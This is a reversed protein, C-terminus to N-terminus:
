SQLNEEYAIKNLADVYARISAGVIDTSVGQGSFLRGGSRLKVLASGMAERGGTVAEIQFDDLEFHRGAAQEVAQFAADVPGDGTVLGRRQTGDKELVIHATADIVNGANIVYSVLKYTAPVQLAAGAVIADLEKVGVNKKVAIRRFAEYVRALDDDTLEYGLKALVQGLAASDTTIDLVTEEGIESLEGGFAPLGRRLWPMRGLSRSLGTMDLGTRIGLSDGRARVVGALAELPLQGGDGAATKVQGAGRGVAAFSCAAAMSLADSCQISLVIGKLAPLREYLRDIFAATEDPLLAGASDCLNVTGAGATIAAELVRCLFDFDARTADEASFEVDGCHVAAASVLRSVLEPLLTPKTQCIYELQVPSVPVSVLLRPKAANMVAGWARELSEETLGTPCSLISNKVLSAITRVLLQDTRDGSLPAFEIVDVGLRSLERALELKEKFSLSYDERLAEARMTTDAILINKM